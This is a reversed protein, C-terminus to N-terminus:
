LLFQDDQGPDGTRAFGRRKLCKLVEAILRYVIQRQFQHRLKGAHHLLRLVDIARRDDHVHAFPLREISKGSIM